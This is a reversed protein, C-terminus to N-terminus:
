CYVKRNNINNSITKIKLNKFVKYLIDRNVYIGKELSLGQYNAKKNTYLKDLNKSTIETKAYEKGFRIIGRKKCVDLLAEKLTALDFEEGNPGIFSIDSSYQNKINNIFENFNVYYGNAININKGSIVKRNTLKDPENHNYGYVNINGAHKEKIIAFGSMNNLIDINISTITISNKEEKVPEEIEDKRNLEIVRTMTTAFFDTIRNDNSEILRKIDNDKTLFPNKREFEEIEENNRYKNGLNNYYDYISIGMRNTYKILEEIYEEKTLKEEPKEKVKLSNLYDLLDDSFIETTAKEDRIVFFVFDKRPEVEKILEDILENTVDHPLYLQCMNGELLMVTLGKRSADKSEEMDSVPGLFPVDINYHNRAINSLQSAHHKRPNGDFIDEVKDGDNNCMIIGRNFKYTLGSMSFLRRLRNQRDGSNITDFINTAQQPASYYKPFEVTIVRNGDKNQYDEVINVKPNSAYDVERKITYRDQKQYMSRKYRYFDSFNKLQEMEKYALDSFHINNNM